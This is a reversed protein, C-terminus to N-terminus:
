SSYAGLSQYSYIWNAFPAEVYRTLSQPRGDRDQMKRQQMFHHQNDHAHPLNFPPVQNFTRGNQVPSSYWQAPAGGHLPGMTPSLTYSPYYSYQGNTMAPTSAQYGQSIAGSAQPAVSNAQTGNQATYTGATSPLGPTFQTSAQKELHLDRGISVERSHRKAAPPIRGMNANHNHLHQEAHTLNSSSSSHGFNNLGNLSNITPLDNTSLSSRQLGPLGGATSAGPGSNGSQSTRTSLQSLPSFNVEISRRNAGNQRPPTDYISGSRSHTPMPGSEPEEGRLVNLPLSQQGQRHRSAFPSWNSSGDAASAYKSTDPQGLSTNVGDSRRILVPFDDITTEARLIENVDVSGTHRHGISSTPYDDDDNLLSNINNIGLVSGVDPLSSMGRYDFNTVPM